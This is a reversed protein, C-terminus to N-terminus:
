KSNNKNRTSFQKFIDASLEGSTIVNLIAPGNNDAVFLPLAELLQKENEAEFYNFGFGAALHKLPLNVKAAFCEDCEPLSSTPKIFRFIGGGHNNIVIMRFQKPINNIALAGLDYQASMDGTILVTMGNYAMAAGIATSTSGDIGSVGRNCDIRHFRTYDSLQVYRIATGNSIQLNCKSPLNTIICDIAKLDCWPTSSIFKKFANDAKKAALQWLKNYESNTNKFPQMGSALQSMFNEAPLNIRHELHMFCDASVERIGVHWHRLEPINRMRRKLNQSLLSGGLTILVDPDLKALDDSSLATYINEINFIASSASVNSQAEAIIAVNPLNALKSLARNLKQNPANFGVAILVKTPPALLSAIARAQATSITPEPDILDIKRFDTQAHEVTNTLPADLQVNIHVPGPRGSLASIITDNIQRNAMWLKPSSQLEADINISAKVLKGYMDKQHITQCDDQDIWEEPRDATIAIIPVERYFAEALAPAYNLMATGSTCILAIPKRSQLALGLAVFGACREDIIVRHRLNLNRTVAMILPANRTGPSLIVDTIGHKVLLDSIERCITKETTQM